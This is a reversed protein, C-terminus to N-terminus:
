KGTLQWVDKVESQKFSFFLIQPNNLTNYSFFLYKINKQPFIQETKRGGKAEWRGARGVGTAVVDGVDIKRVIFKM